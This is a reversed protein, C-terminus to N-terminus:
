IRKRHLGILYSDDTGHVIENKIVAYGSLYLLQLRSSIIKVEEVVQFINTDWFYWDDVWRKLHTKGHLELWTALMPGMTYPNRCWQHGRRTLSRDAVCKWSPSPATEDSSSTKRHDLVTFPMLTNKKTREKPRDM